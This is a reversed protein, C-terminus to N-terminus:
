GKTKKNVLYKAKAAVVPHYVRKPFAEKSFLENLASEIVLERHKACLDFSEYEDDMSGAADMKRNVWYHKTQVDQRTGCVDCIKITAM